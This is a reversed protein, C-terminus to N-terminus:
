DPARYREKRGDVLHLERRELGGVLEEQRTSVVLTVDNGQLGNLLRHMRRVGDEDLHRAPEDLMVCEPSSILGAALALLSQTRPSLEGYPLGTQPEEIGVFELAERVRQRQLSPSLDYMSACVRLNRVPSLLPDFTGPGPRVFGLNHRLAMSRAPDKGFLRVRGRDPGYMGILLNLLVSKGAAAPGTVHLCVGPPHELSLGRLARVELPDFLRELTQGCTFRKHVDELRIM